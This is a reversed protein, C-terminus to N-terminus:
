TGGVPPEVLTERGDGGTWVVAITDGEGASPVAVDAGAGVEEVSGESLSAWSGLEEGNRTVVLEDADIADGGDHVVTVPDSGQVSFSATPSSEANEGLGLVFSALVASGIVAVVILAFIAAIGILIWVAISHGDDDEEEESM